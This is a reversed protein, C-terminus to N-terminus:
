QELMRSRFLQIKAQGGLTPDELIELAWDEYLASDFTEGFEVMLEIFAVMDREAEIGFESAIEMGRRILARAGEEGMQEYQTPFAGGIHHVLRTEFARLRYDSLAVMQAKRIILM